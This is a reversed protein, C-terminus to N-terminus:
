ATEKLQSMYIRDGYRIGEMSDNFIYIGIQILGDLYFGQSIHAIEFSSNVYM